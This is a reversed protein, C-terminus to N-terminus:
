PAPFDLGKLHRNDLNAQLSRVIDGVAGKLPGMTRSVDCFQSLNGSPDEDLPNPGFTRNLSLANAEIELRDSSGFNYTNRLFRSWQNNRKAATCWRTARGVSM